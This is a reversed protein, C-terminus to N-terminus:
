KKKPEIRYFWGFCTFRNRKGFVPTVEHLRPVRFAIISNFEPVYTKSEAHDVFAGGFDISWEKTLYFVLAIDRCYM